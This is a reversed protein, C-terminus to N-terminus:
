DIKYYTGYLAETRLVKRGYLHLGRVIEGFSNPNRFMETKAIQSATATSSMHGCLLVDTADSWDSHSSITTSSTPLNNSRYLDFGLVKERTMLGNRMPSKSDGTFNAGMLKANEDGFVEWFKPAAVAWRGESPLNADDMLRSMRNIATYPSTEGSAYGIDKSASITGYTNSSGSSIQTEMYDFVEQDFTDKLSYAASSVALPQWNIHSQKEEIDDVGFQFYNAKDVILSIENDALDETTLNQGRAYSSVTVSPEKIIKVTDGFSAIEGAYDNNTVAEVVSERRFFKQVKQSYIVPTFNGQSLNSHGASNTFAM